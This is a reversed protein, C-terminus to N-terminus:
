GGGVQVGRHRTDGEDAVEVAADGRGLGGCTVLVDVDQAGAGSLLAELRTHEVLDERDDRGDHEAAADPQEVVRAPRVDPEFAEAQSM